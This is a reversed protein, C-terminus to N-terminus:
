CSTFMNALVHICVKSPRATNISAELEDDDEWNEKACGCDQGSDSDYEDCAAKASGCGEESGLEHEGCAAKASGSDEGSYPGHEGCASQM